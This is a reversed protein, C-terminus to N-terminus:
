ADEEADAAAQQASAVQAAIRQVLTGLEVAAGSDGALVKDLLPTLDAIGSGADKGLIGFDRHLLTTAHKATPEHGCGCADTLVALYEGALGADLHLDIPGGAAIRAPLAMLEAMAVTELRKDAGEPPPTTTEPPPEQLRSLMSEATEALLSEVMPDFAAFVSSPLASSRKVETRLDLQHQALATPYSATADVHRPHQM